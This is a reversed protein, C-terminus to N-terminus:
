GLTTGSKSCRVPRATIRLGRSGHSRWIHKPGIMMLEPERRQVRIVSEFYLAFCLSFPHAVTEAMSLAALGRESARDPYGLCWLALSKLAPAAVALDIM